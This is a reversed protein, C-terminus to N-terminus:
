SDPSSSEPTPPVTSPQRCHYQSHPGRRAFQDARHTILGVIAETPPEAVVWHSILPLRDAVKVKSWRMGAVGCLRDRQTDLDRQYLQVVPRSIAREFAWPAEM